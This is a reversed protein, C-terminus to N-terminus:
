VVMCLHTALAMCGGTTALSSPSHTAHAILGEQAPALSSFDKELNRHRERQREITICSDEGVNRCNLEVWLETMAVSAM